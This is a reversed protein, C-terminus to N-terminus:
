GDNEEEEGDAIYSLLGCVQFSDLYYGDGENIKMVQYEHRFEVLSSEFHFSMCEVVDGGEVLYYINDREYENFGDAYSECRYFDLKLSRGLLYEHEFFKNGHEDHGSMEPHLEFHDFIKPYVADLYKDVAYDIVGDDGEAEYDLMYALDEPDCLDFIRRLWKEVDEKTYIEAMNRM